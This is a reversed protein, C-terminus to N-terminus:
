SRNILSEADVWRDGTYRPDFGWYDAVAWRLDSSSANPNNFIRYADKYQTKMEHQMYQLQETETISSISRGFHREIAGLRASNDHWSAWSILGGNRNTGDGAVEEWERMGNWASEHSIASTIYASGRVPFGMSQLHQFGSESTLDTGPEAAKPSQSRLLSLSPKGNRELQADIFARESM